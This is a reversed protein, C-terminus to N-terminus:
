PVRVIRDRAPPSLPAGSLSPALYAELAETDDPGAALATGTGLVSFGAMGGAVSTNVAVRYARGASVPAGRVTVGRLPSPSTECPRGLIAAAGAESWGYHVTASPQLVRPRPQGCWQQKLLELLQGGTLTMTVIRTGFPQAAFARGFTVDGAALSARVTGPNVFAADASGAVRHADAVLNGLRSEGSIDPWRSAFQALRGIVRDRLPAALTTYRAILENLDVAPPVDQTVIKNDARMRVVDHTRRSITLSARTILRGFSGAATVRRHDIVCNYAAHTHGTLFLDVEQSTRRVIGALPGFMGRCEDPAAPRAQNDGEHLLVVIARVGQARLERVYRNATRAEDRFRLRAAITPSLLFSTGELTMGIVGIREGGVSFVTYPELLPKRGHPRLVNAALFPFRAGAFPTGDACGDVPHCGGEQLRRLEIAGEDFEHNGVATADLGIANMAEITPEDHFLASVLPSAGVIDGAAVVLTHPNRLRLMRVHSALYAAGGAPVGDSPRRTPSWRGPTSAELHGHFDNIALLQVRVRKRAASAPATVVLALVVAAVLVRM